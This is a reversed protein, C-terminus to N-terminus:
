ATRGARNGVVLEVRHLVLRRTTIEKARSGPRTPNLPFADTLPGDNERKACNALVGIDTEDEDRRACRKTVIMTLPSTSSAVDPPTRREFTSQGAEDFDM